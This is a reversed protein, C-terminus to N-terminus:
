YESPLLITTASRGRETIIWIKTVGDGLLYASFIRDQGSELARDNLRSDHPDMEGWDGGLHRELFEAPSQGAESLARIAGPTAYTRGPQFKARTM